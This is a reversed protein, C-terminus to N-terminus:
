ELFDVNNLDTWRWYGGSGAWTVRPQVLRNENVYGPSVDGHITVIQSRKLEVGTQDVQPNTSFVLSGAKVRVREGNKVPINGFPGVFRLSEHGKRIMWDACLLARDMRDRAGNRERSYTGPPFQISLDKYLLESEAAIQLLSEPTIM